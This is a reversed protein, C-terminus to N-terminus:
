TTTMQFGRLYEESDPLLHGYTQNIMAVSQGHDAGPLLAPRRRRDTADLAEGPFRRDRVYQSREATTGSLSFGGSRAAGRRPGARSRLTPFRPRPGRRRCATFGAECGGHERRM